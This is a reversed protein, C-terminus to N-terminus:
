ANFDVLCLNKSRIYEAMNKTHSTAICCSCHGQCKQIYKLCCIAQLPCNVFNFTQSQTKVTSFTVTDWLQSISGESQVNFHM